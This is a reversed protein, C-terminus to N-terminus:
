HPHPKIFQGGEWSYLYRSFTKSLLNGLITTTKLHFYGSKNPAHEHGWGWGASASPLWLQNFDRPFFCSFPVSGELTLLDLCFPSSLLVPLHLPVLIREPRVSSPTSFYLLMQFKSTEVADFAASSGPFALGSGWIGNTEWIRSWTLSWRNGGQRETPHVNLPIPDSSGNHGKRVEGM